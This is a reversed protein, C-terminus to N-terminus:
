LGCRSLVVGTGLESNSENVLVRHGGKYFLSEIAETGRKHSSALHLSRGKPFSEVLDGFKKFTVSHDVLSVAEASIRQLTPNYGIRIEFNNPDFDAEVEDRIINLINLMLSKNTETNYPKDVKDAHGPRPFYYSTVLRGDAGLLDRIRELGGSLRMDDSISEDSRANFLTGGWMIGISPRGTVPLKGEGKLFDLSRSSVTSNPIHQKVIEACADADSASLDVAVYDIKAGSAADQFARLLPITKKLVSVPLGCGLEIFTPTEGVRVLEGVLLSIINPDAVFKEEQNAPFSSDRTVEAWLKMGVSNYTHKLMHGSMVGRMLNMTDVLIDPGIDSALRPDQRKLISTM